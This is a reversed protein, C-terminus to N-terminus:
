VKKLTFSFTSGQGETSRVDITQGHAEVLHKVIALGLGTGGENRARSKDVRYFREFLRPLHEERIGVGDDSVEILINDELDFFRVETHGNEVGYNISNNIINSLVQGIKDRDCLVNIEQSGIRKWDLSLKVNRKQAKIELSEVIERALSLINVPALNLKLRESEIRTILDLDEIIGTVRDVGKSARELFARNINEDELGGELLTLIYGQISFIPTKLEHSLNGLFERRFEEQLRM